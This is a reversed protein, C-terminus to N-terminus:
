RLVATMAEAVHAVSRTSLGSVCLRGSRVLYVGHETRLQEVQREDLGTFSFMGRQKLLYSFDRCGNSRVLQAHLQLRMDQMRKRM